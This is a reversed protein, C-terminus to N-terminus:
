WWWGCSAARGARRCPATGRAARRLRDVGRHEGAELAPRVHVGDGADRHRELLRQLLVEADVAALHEGVGLRQRLPQEVAAGREDGAAGVVVHHHEVRHLAEAEVPAGGLAREVPDDIVTLLCIMGSSGLGGSRGLPM